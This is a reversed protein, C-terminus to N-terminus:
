FLSFSAARRIVLNATRASLDSYRYGPQVNTWYDEELRGNSLGRTTLPTEM